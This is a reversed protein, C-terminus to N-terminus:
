VADEDQNGNLVCQSRPYRDSPIAHPSLTNRMALPTSCSNNHDNNTSKNKYLARFLKTKKKKKLCFVAYSIQDHSSNLRTSKRDTWTAATSSLCGGRQPPLMKLHSATM